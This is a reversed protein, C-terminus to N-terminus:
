SRGRDRRLRRGQPQRRRGPRRRRRLGRGHGPRHRPHRRHRRRGPRRAPVLLASRRRERRGTCRARPPPRRRAARPRRRRPRAPDWRAGNDVVTGHQWGDAVRGQGGEVEFVRGTVGAATPRAWGSWSRRRRERPGHRRLRRDDPRAMMDAFVDETMRTRASPAIANATVGYRGLEAAQVLTLAPSAPRPRALLRGPRRQGHARRGVDHQHHPRRGGRGGEGRDRWYAAAHRSPAFHGKCTSGCSARGVRGRHRQRVHPRPRLRRQQGGRRPPRLDDVRPAPGHRRRRGLRRRRRRQGRGRRRRAPDRRRGRAAPNDASPTGDLERASTTSWSRPARAPSSWPTAGASGRARRRDRHRGPGRLHGSM